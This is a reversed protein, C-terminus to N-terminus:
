QVYGQEKCWLAGMILPSSVIICFMKLLVSMGIMQALVTIPTAYGFAGSFFIIGDVVQGFVMAGILGLAQMWGHMYRRVTGAATITCIQACYHAVISFMTIYPMRALLLAFAEHMSDAPLPVYAVQFWCLAWFFLSAVVSLRATTRAFENGWLSSGILLGCMSGIIYMDSGSAVVGWLVMRKVIFLNALVTYVCVLAQVANQGLLAAGCVVSLVFFIHTSFLIENMMAALIGYSMLLFM